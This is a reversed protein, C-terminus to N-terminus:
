FFLFFNEFLCVCFFEFFFFSCLAYCLCLSLMKGFVFHCDFFSVCVVACFFCFPCFVFKINGKKSIM